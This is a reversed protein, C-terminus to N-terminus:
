KRLWSEGGLTFKFGLRFMFPLAPYGFAESYHESLLNQFSGEVAVSRTAQYSTTLDLKQYAGVLNRNPLLMSTGGNADYELFDSDDRRSVLTGRLAALLKGHRYGSQFYGTHPAIRFPRAGALPSFVGIPTSSESSPLASNTVVMGTDNSFSQQIRADVYTYGARVFWDRTLQSEVEAEIGQARYAKSNVTAGYNTDEAITVISAPLGLDTLGQPPIYEIGNTFENHFLSLSARVRGGRFLQDVGGDYSRSNEPGIPAIHDQAILQDGQPQSGPLLLLAYLSEIQDFVAPEKIGKGFSARLKTGSAAQWALSVRPTAAFGFLGNKELGGGLTYFLRSHIDGQLEFTYSFNGREVSNTQGYSYGREDEYRFAVLGLAHPNFHYNSQAYVFDKDTSVPDYNPYTEVYQYLAQGSVTNGMADRLTVPAGLYDLLNGSGDYQPIGTPAFETYDSRLRVGGYRVLNNWNAATHDEWTVGFYSDENALKADTPIGYLQIANPQGSAIQDHHLTARVSSRPSPTWGFNGAFTGNHFKSDPTSNDTDFRAYDTFYDFQKRQGGMSAEQRYTGFNGGDVLYTVLPLPTSGRATTLSVVGALADSGYLVSNPGRLVEAQAIAASTINAFEVNGGIDNAPIGDLLVKNADSGGGRIYLQTTGGAQGVQAAQLGPVNRLGEQLDRTGAYDTSSLVTVAAGLQAQPTPTGTSTVTIQESFSALQLVFDLALEGDNGQPEISKDATSFGADSVRLRSGPALKRSISYQGRADTFVAAVPVGNEVLEVKANPIVAGSPDSVTGRIVPLPSAFLLATFAFVFSCTWRFRRSVLFM